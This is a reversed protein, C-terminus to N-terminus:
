AVSRDVTPGGPEELVTPPAVYQSALPRDVTWAAFSAALYLAPIASRYANHRWAGILVGLGLLAVVSTKGATQWAATWRDPEDHLHLSADIVSPAVGLLGVALALLLLRRPGRKRSGSRGVEASETHHTGVIAM